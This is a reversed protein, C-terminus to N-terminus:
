ESEEEEDSEDNEEPPPLQPARTVQGFTMGNSLKRTSITGTVLSLFVGDYWYKMSDNYPHKEKQHIRQVLLIPETNPYREVWVIDGERLSRWKPFHHRRRQRRLHRTWWSM